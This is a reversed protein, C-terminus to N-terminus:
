SVWCSAPHRRRVALVVSGSSPVIAVPAVPWFTIAVPIAEATSCDRAGGPVM